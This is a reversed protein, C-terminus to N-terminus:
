LWVLGAAFLAVFIGLAALVRPRFGGAGLAVALTAKFVTNAIMGVLLTRAALDPALGDRALQNASYTLADMDTLGVVAASGVVGLEGLREEALELLWLVAQFLIVMQIASALRLPNEPLKAAGAAARERGKWLAVGVFIAGFLLPAVLAPFLAMAVERHLVFSLVGVRAPLITCAAVVGLALAIEAERSKRSERAFNLTVATSSVLGGFFGALGYGREPGAVRMALYGAFSLGAFLLVLGWLKRPEIGGWNEFPGAPLLPLVVLAMAAFRAAAELEESRLKAVAGHMRGKSVLVLATLASVASAPVILGAGALAGAGLVVVAAVETTADITGHWATVFYAVAVVVIAGSVLVVGLIPSIAQGAVSSLGGILGLLLFTRVGGFRTNVKERGASWEREIGVALGGLAAVALHLLIQQVDPTV